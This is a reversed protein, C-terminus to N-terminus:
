GEAGLVEDVWGIGAVACPFGCTTIALLAVQRVEAKGAGAALAKRANSRVAGEAESGIALGLKVLRATKEDLPGASDVSKGLQDLAKAVEPNDERFNVYVDPLYDASM